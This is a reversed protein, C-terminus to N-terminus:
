TTNTTLVWYHPSKHTAQLLSKHMSGARSQNWRHAVHKTRRSKCSSYSELVIVQRQMHQKFTLM